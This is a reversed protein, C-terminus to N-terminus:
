LDFRQCESESIYTKLHSYSSTPTKLEKLKLIFGLLGIDINPTSTGLKKILKDNIEKSMGFDIIYLKKGKYMYNLINSDGHFVKVSDLKKFIRVIDKQQQLTLDGEQELMIETLHKDMKHMVIYKDNMNIDVIDPCIGVTSAQRQLDAELKLTNSSKRKKFTKMAYKSNGPSRVLYTVGEKGRDGLQEYREYSISNNYQELSRTIDQILLEKSRRSKLGMELAMNKLENFNFKTLKSSNM